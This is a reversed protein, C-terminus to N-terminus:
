PTGFKNVEYGWSYPRPSEEEVGGSDTGLKPEIFMTLWYEGTDAGFSLVAGNTTVLDATNASIHKNSLDLSNKTLIYGHMEYYEPVLDDITITADRATTSLTYKTFLSETVEAPTDKTSSGSTLNMTTTASTIAAQYFAKKPIVLEDHANLVVQRINLGKSVMRNKVIIELDDHAAGEVFEFTATNGSTRTGNIDIAVSYKQSSTLTETVKYETDTKWLHVTEIFQGDAEIAFSDDVTYQDNGYAVAFKETSGTVEQDNEDYIEKKLRVVTPKVKPVDFEREYDDGYVDTYELTTTGNTPAKGDGDLVALVDKTGTVRYTLEAYMIDNETFNNNPDQSIPTKMEGIDWLIQQSGATGSVTVTGQSANADTVTGDMVFGTGMPDIVVASKVNGIFKSAIQLLIEKLDDPTASFSKDPSSAVEKMVEESAEEENAFKQEDLDLGITYIDTIWEEGATKMKGKIITAEAIASNASNLYYKNNTGTPVDFEALSSVEYLFALGSGSTATYDFSAEPITRVTQYSDVRNAYPVAEMHSDSNYPSKPLYSYTPVGDSILVVNRSVATSETIVEGAANLAGQTFTGGDPVLDEIATVLESKNAVNVWNGTSFTHTTVEKGYTILSIKNEYGTQLLQDVFSKAAEKAKPMRDGDKMSGSTDVVLVVDVAPPPNYDRAEVRVTIDWQNVMGAVPKATKSTGVEGSQLGFQNRATVSKESENAKIPTNTSLLSQSFIIMSIFFLFLSVLRFVGKNNRIKNM